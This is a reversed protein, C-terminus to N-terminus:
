DHSGDGSGDRAKTDWRVFVSCSHMSRILAKWPLLFQKCVLVFSITLIAGVKRNQMPLLFYLDANSEYIPFSVVTSSLENEHILTQNLMSCSIYIVKYLRYVSLRRSIRNIPIIDSLMLVLHGIERWVKVLTNFCNGVAELISNADSIATISSRQHPLLPQLWPLKHM